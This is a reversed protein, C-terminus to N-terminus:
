SLKKIAKSIDSSHIYNTSKMAEIVKCLDDMDVDSIKAKDFHKALKKIDEYKKELKFSEQANELELKRAKLNIEDKSAEIKAIKYSYWKNIALQCVVKVAYVVSALKFLIYLCWITLGWLAMEPTSKLITFLEQIQDM